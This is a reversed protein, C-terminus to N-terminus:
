SFLFTSYTADTIHTMFKESVWKCPSYGGFITKNSSM